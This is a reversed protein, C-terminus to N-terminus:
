ADLKKIVWLVENKDEAITVGKKTEGVFSLGPPLPVSSKVEVETNNQEAVEEFPLAPADAAEINKWAQARQVVLFSEGQRILNAMTQRVFSPELSLAKAIQEVTTKRGVPRNRMYQRIRDTGSNTYKRKLEVVTNGKAM